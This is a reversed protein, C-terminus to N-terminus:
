KEIKRHCVYITRFHAIKLYFYFGEEKILTLFFFINTIHLFIVFWIDPENYVLIETNICKFIRRAYGDEKLRLISQEIFVIYLSIM